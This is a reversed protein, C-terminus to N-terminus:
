MQGRKPDGAGPEGEACASSPGADVNTAGVKAAAEVPSAVVEARRRRSSTRRPPAGEGGEHDVAVDGSKRPRTTRASKTAPAAAKAVADVRPAATRTRRTRARAPRGEGPSASEAPAGPGAYVQPAALHLVAETVSSVGEDEGSTRRRAM